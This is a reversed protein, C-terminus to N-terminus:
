HLHKNEKTEKNVKGGEVCSHTHTHTQIIKGERVQKVISTSIGSVFFILFVYYEYYFRNM